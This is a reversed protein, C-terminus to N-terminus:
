TAFFLGAGAAARRGWPAALAAAALSTGGLWALDFARWGANSAGFLELAVLHLLYVGPFNMDFLDRYPMAGESIRWAIYHM